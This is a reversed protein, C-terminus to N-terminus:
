PKRRVAKIGGNKEIWEKVTKLRWYRRGDFVITPEPFGTPVHNQKPVPTGSLFSNIELSDCMFWDELEPAYPDFTKKLRWIM